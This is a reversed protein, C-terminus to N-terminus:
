QAKESEGLFSLADNKPLSCKCPSFSFAHKGNRAIANYIIKVTAVV